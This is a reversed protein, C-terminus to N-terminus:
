RPPERSPESAAAPWSASCRGPASASSDAAIDQSGAGQAGIIKQAAPRRFGATQVRGESVGGVAVPARGDPVSPLHPAPRRRRAPWPLTMAPIFIVILEAMRALSTDRGAAASSVVDAASPWCGARGAAGTAAAVGTVGAAGPRRGPRGEPDPRRM